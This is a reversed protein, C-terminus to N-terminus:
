KKRGEAAWVPATLLLILAGLLPSFAPWALRPYASYALLDPQWLLVAAYVGLFLVAGLAVFTDRRGWRRPRYRTRRVSRGQVFLAAVLVVGGGLLLGTALLGGSGLGARALLGALMLLLSVVLLWQGWRRAQPSRLPAAGFGRAEMSEALQLSRELSITLLPMLLPLVDRLGRARHGRIAQAERIERLATVAQPISTLAISAMVGTQFFVPPLARLLQYPDVARSLTAFIAVVALLALGSLFGYVAAELTVPGGVLSGILPLSRPLTFLVTQGYHATMANLPITILWILLGVRLFFGWGAPGHPLAARVVVVTLFLVTLYAPNRTTLALLAAAV